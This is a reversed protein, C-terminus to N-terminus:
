STHVEPHLACRYKGSGSATSEMIRGSGRKEMAPAFARCLLFAGTANADIMHRWLALDTRALPASEAAGANNVLVDVDGVHAALRTVAEEDTVDCVAVSGGVASAVAELKAADRGVLASALYWRRVVRNNRLDDAREDYIATELPAIAEDGHGSLWLAGGLQTRNNVLEEARLGPM